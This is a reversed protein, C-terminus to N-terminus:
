EHGTFCQSNQCICLNMYENNCYWLIMCFLKLENFFGQAEGTVGKVGEESLWQYKKSDRYNQRKWIAHLQFWVSKDSQSRESLFICKLNMCTEQHNSLENEKRYSLIANYPHKMIQTDIWRNFSIRTAEMKQYAAICIWPCTKTYVYIKLDTQYYKPIHNSSWKISNHNAKHSTALTNELLPEVM